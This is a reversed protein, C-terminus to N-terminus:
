FFSWIKASASAGIRSARGTNRLKATADVLIKGSSDELCSHLVRENPHISPTKVSETKIVFFQDAFAPAKYSIDIEEVKFDDKIGSRFGGSKSAHDKFQENLITAIIGGHVIFPYGCMRKGLHTICISKLEKFNYFTEPKILIGGPSALTDGMLHKTSIGAGSREGQLDLINRDFDEWSQHKIWHRSNRSYALQQYIPLAKLQYELRVPLMDNDDVKAFASYVDFINENYSLFAGAGFFGVLLPLNLLKGGRQGESFLRKNFNNM